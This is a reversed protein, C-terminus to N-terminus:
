MFIQLTQQGNLYSSHVIGQYPVMYLDQALKEKQLNM